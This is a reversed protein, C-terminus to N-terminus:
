RGLLRRVRRQGLYEGDPAPEAGDEVRECEGEVVEADEDVREWRDGAPEFRAPDVFLVQEGLLRAIERKIEAERDPPLPRKLEELLLAL